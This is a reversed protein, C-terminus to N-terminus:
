TSCVAGVLLGMVVYGPMFMNWPNFIVYLLVLLGCGVALESKVM